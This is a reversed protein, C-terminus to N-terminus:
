LSKRGFQPLGALEPMEAAEHELEEVLHLPNTRLVPLFAAKYIFLYLLFFFSFFFLPAVRKEKAASRWKFFNFGTRAVFDVLEGSWTRLCDM